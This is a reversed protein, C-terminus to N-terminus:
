MHTRGFAGCTCRPGRKVEQAAARTPLYRAIVKALNFSKGFAQVDYSFTVGKSAPVM